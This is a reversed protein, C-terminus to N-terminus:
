DNKIKSKVAAEAAFYVNPHVFTDGEYCQPIIQAINLRVKVIAM